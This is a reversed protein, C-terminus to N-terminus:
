SKEQIGVQDIQQSDDLNLQALVFDRSQFLQEQFAEAMGQIESQLQDSEEEWDRRLTRAAKLTKRIRGQLEEELYVQKEIEKQRDVLVKLEQIKDRFRSHLTALAEKLQVADRISIEVMQRGSRLEIMLEAEGGKKILEEELSLSEATNRRMNKLRDEVRRMRDTLFLSARNEWFTLLESPELILTSHKERLPIAIEERRRNLLLRQIKVHFGAGVLAGLVACSLFGLLPVLLGSSGSLIAGLGGISFIAGVMAIIVGFVLGAAGMLFAMSIGIGLFGLLTLVLILEKGAFLGLLGLFVAGILAGKKLSAEQLQAFLLELEEDVKRQVVGERFAELEMEWDMESVEQLLDKFESDRDLKVRTQAPRPQFRNQLEKPFSPDELFLGALDRLFAEAQKESAELRLRDEIKRFFRHWDFIDAHLYASIRSEVQEQIEKSALNDLRLFSALRNQIGLDPSVNDSRAVEYLYTSFVFRSLQDLNLPKKRPDFAMNM